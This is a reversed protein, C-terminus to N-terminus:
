SCACKWPANSQRQRCIEHTFVVWYVMTPVMNYPYLISSLYQNGSISTGHTCCQLSILAGQIYIFKDDPWEGARCRSLPLRRPFELCTPARGWSVCLSLFLDGRPFTSFNVYFHCMFSSCPGLLSLLTSSTRSVFFCITGIWLFSTISYVFFWRTLFIDFYSILYPHNVVADTLLGLSLFWMINSIVIRDQRLLYLESRVWSWLMERVSSLIFMKQHSLHSSLFWDMHSSQFLHDFLFFRRGRRFRGM